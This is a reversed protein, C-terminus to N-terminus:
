QVAQCGSAFSREEVFIHLAGLRFQASRDLTPADQHDAAGAGDARARHDLDCPSGRFREVYDVLVLIRQGLQDPLQPRPGIRPRRAIELGEREVVARLGCAQEQRCLRRVVHDQVEGRQLMDARFLIRERRQLYEVGVQGLLSAQHSPEGVGAKPAPQEVDRGVLRGVRGRHHAGGLANHLM